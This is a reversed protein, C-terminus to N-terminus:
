EFINNIKFIHREISFEKTFRMIVYDSLKIYDDISLEMTKNLTVLLSSSDCGSYMLPYAKTLMDPIGGVDTCIVPKGFYMAEIISLPQGENKSPLIFYDCWIFASWKDDADIIDNIYIGNDQHNYELIKNKIKEDLFAGYCRLEIDKYKNRLISFAELLELIGKESIYNSIYLFKKRDHSFNEKINNSSVNGPVNISNELVVLKNFYKKNFDNKFVNSLLIIKYAIKLAIYSVVTTRRSFERFDGRHLHFMIRVRPSSAKVLISLFIIKLLSFSSTPFVAYFYVPKYSFSKLVLWIADLMIRLVFFIINNYYGYSHEERSIVNFKSSLIKINLKNSLSIGHIVTSPLEGYFLLNKM